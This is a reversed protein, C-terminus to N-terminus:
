IRDVYPLHMAYRIIIFVLAMAHLYSHFRKLRTSINAIAFHLALVTINCRIADFHYILLSRVFISFRFSYFFTHIFLFHLSFPIFVLAFFSIRAKCYSFFIFFLLLLMLLLLLLLALVTFIFCKSGKRDKIHACLHELNELILSYFNM